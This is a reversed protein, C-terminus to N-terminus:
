VHARGIENDDDDNDNDDDNTKKDITVDNLITSLKSVDNDNDVLAAM